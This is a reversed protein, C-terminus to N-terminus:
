MNEYFSDLGGVRGTVYYKAKPSLKPARVKIKQQIHLAQVYEIYLYGELNPRNEIGTELQSTVFVFNVKDTQKVWKVLLELVSSPGSAKIVKIGSINIFQPFNHM